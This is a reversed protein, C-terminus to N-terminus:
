QLPFPLTFSAAAQARLAAAPSSMARTLVTLVNAVCDIRGFRFSRGSTPGYAIVGCSIM